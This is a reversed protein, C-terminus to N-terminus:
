FFILNEAKVWKASSVQQHPPVEPLSEMQSEKTKNEFERKLTSKNGIHHPLTHYRDMIKSDQGYFLHNMLKMYLNILFQIINMNNGSTKPKNSLESVQTIPDFKEVTNRRGFKMSCLPSCFEKLRSNSPITSLCLNSCGNRCCERLHV